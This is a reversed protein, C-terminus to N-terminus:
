QKYSLAPLLTRMYFVCKLIDTVNIEYFAHIKLKRLICVEHGKVNIDKAREKEVSLHVFVVLVARMHSNSYPSHLTSKHKTSM